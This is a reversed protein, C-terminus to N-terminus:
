RLALVWVVEFTSYIGLRDKFHKEYYDQVRRLFDKGIYIDKKLGNAGIGKIWRILSMLDPYRVKIIETSVQYDTFQAHTLAQRINDEKYLREIPVRGEGYAFDLSEFLEKFTNFGFMTMFLRGQPRLVRACEAFTQNLDGMWQYALNSAIIDAAMDKFPLQRADAQLIDFDGDRKRATDIMGEAFDVGIVRSDPFMLDLRNTMWGTGMGIDAIVDCRKVDKMKGYLERGIERHLSALADYHLSSTSFKSQIKEDLLDISKM